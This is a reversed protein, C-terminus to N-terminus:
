AFRRWAGLGLATALALIGALAALPSTGATAPLATRNSRTTDSDSMNGPQAANNQAMTMTRASSAASSSRPAPASASNAAMAGNNNSSEAAEAVSNDSADMSGRLVGGSVPTPATNAVYATSQGSSATRTLGNVATQQAVSGASPSTLVPNKTNIALQAAQDKPYVFEWGIGTAPMWYSGIAPPATSATELFRLEPAAVVDTRSTPVALLTGFTKSGDGNQIRLIGRDSFSQLIQFRYRGAPLTSGPITVPQTFTFYVIRESNQTQAQAVGVGCWTMATVMAASLLIKKFNM